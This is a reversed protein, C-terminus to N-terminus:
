SVNLIVKILLTTVYCARTQKRTTVLSSYIVPRRWQWVIKLRQSVQKRLVFTKTVCLNRSIRRSLLNIRLLTQNLKRHLVYKKNLIVKQAGSNMSTGNKV